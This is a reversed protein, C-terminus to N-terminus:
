ALDFLEQRSEALGRRYCPLKPKSTYNRNVGGAALEILPIWNRVARLERDVLCKSARVQDRIGVNTVGDRAVQAIPQCFLYCIWSSERPPIAWEGRCRVAPCRATRAISLPHEPTDMQTRSIQLSPAGAETATQLVEM